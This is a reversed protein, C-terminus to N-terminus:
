ADDTIVDVLRRRRTPATPASRCVRILVHPYMGIGLEARLLARTSPVEVIQTFMSATYGHQSVELLVRELAEGAPIWAGPNDANTGLLLLCQRAISETRAALEGTGYTDFDRMPVEDGSAEGIRPVAFSPVGDVRLPDDTTWRRLEARYAPQANQIRDAHQALRAVARRHAERSVVFLEAGEERAASVLSTVVHDSVQENEFSRRNSQRTDISSDLDALAQDGPGPTAQVIAVLDERGPDPYREVRSALGVAAMAVRANFVACGCSILLQRGTPDLTRLRRTWDAHVELRGQRLVLHWPQTNHVSPARTARVAARRLAAAIDTGPEMM